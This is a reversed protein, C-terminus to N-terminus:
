LLNKKQDVDKPDLIFKVILDGRFDNDYSMPIGFNELYLKLGNDIPKFNKINWSVGYFDIIFDDGYILQKISIMKTQLIDFKDICINDQINIKFILNGIKDKKQDGFDYFVCYKHLIPVRFKFVEFRKNINRKVSVTMVKKDYVDVFNVNIDMNIDFDSILDFTHFCKCDDVDFFHCESDSNPESLNDKINKDIFFNFIDNIPSSKLRNIINESIDDFKKSKIDSILEDPNPYFYKVIYNDKYKNILQNLVIQFDLRETDNMSDYRRREYDNSLIEYAYSIEKFKREALDKDKNKDPHWIKAKKYYAKKIENIDGDKNVELINYLDM